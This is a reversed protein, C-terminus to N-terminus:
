LVSSCGIDIKKEKGNCERREKNKGDNKLISSNIRPNQRGVPNKERKECKSQRCVPNECEICETYLVKEKAVPCYRAM